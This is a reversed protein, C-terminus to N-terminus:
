TCPLEKAAPVTSYIRGGPMSDDLLNCHIMALVSPAQPGFFFFYRGSAQGGSAGSVQSLRDSPVLRRCPSSLVRGQGGTGGQGLKRHGQSTGHRGLYKKIAISPVLLEAMSPEEEPWGCAWSLLEGPQWGNEETGLAETPM